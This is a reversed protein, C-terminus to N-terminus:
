QARTGCSSFGMYRSGMSWLLLLWSLSFGTCQLLSFAQVYCRLGLAALFLFLYIIFKKFIIIALRGFCLGGPGSSNM